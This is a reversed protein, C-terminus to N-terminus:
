QVCYGQQPCQLTHRLLPQCYIGWLQHTRADQPPFCLNHSQSDQELYYDLWRWKQCAEHTWSSQLHNWPRRIKWSQPWWTHNFATQQTSCRLQCGTRLHCKEMWLRSVRSLRTWQCSVAQNSQSWHYLSWHAQTDKHPHRVIQYAQGTQEQGLCISTWWSQTAQLYAGRGITAWRSDIYSPQPLETGPRISKRIEKSSWDRHRPEWHNCHFILDQETTASPRSSGLSSRSKCLRRPSKGRKIHKSLDIVTSSCMRIAETQDQHLPDQSNMQALLSPTQHNQSLRSLLTTELPPDQLRQDKMQSLLSLKGHMIEAEECLYSSHHYFLIYIWFMFSGILDSPLLLASHAVLAKFDPGTKTRNGKKSPSCVPGTGSPKLICSGHVPVAFFQLFVTLVPQLQDWFLYM